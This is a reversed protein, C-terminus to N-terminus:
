KRRACSARSIAAKADLRATEAVFDCLNSRAMGHAATPQPGRTDDPCREALRAGRFAKRRSGASRSAPWDRSLGGNHARPAKFM